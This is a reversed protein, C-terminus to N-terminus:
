YATTDPTLHKHLDVGHLPQGEETQAALWCGLQYASVGGGAAEVVEDVAAVAAVRIGCEDPGTCFALVVYTHSLQAVM